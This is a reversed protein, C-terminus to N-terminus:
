SLPIELLAVYRDGQESTTLRGRRDTAADLRSRVASQGVHHGQIRSGSPSRPNTIRIQLLEGEIRIDVDILGGSASPEIGHRVANEVLPQVMLAPLVLAPLAPPQSWSLQLREGLRLQEIDLYRRSLELEESLPIPRSASLAARFLDSLDELLREALEPQQRVLSIATNLTNFLFHPNVRAQLAEHEARRVKAHLQANSWLTQFAGLGLLGITIAVGAARLVLDALAIEPLLGPVLQHLGVCTATTTLALMGVGTWATRVPDTWRMSTVLLHLGGLSLLVVWAGLFAILGFRELVLALPRGPPVSVLALVLALGLVILLAWVQSRPRWLAELPNNSRAEMGQGQMGSPDCGILHPVAGRIGSAGPKPASTPNRDPGPRSQPLTAVM